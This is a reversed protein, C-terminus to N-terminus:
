NTIHGICAALIELVQRWLLLWIIFKTIIIAFWKSIPAAFFIYSFFYNKYLLLRALVVHDFRSDYRITSQLGELYKPINNTICRQLKRPFSLHLRLSYIDNHNLNLLFSIRFKKQM